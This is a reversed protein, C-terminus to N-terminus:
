KLVRVAGTLRSRWYPVKISTVTVHKGRAPAHVMRGEGVYIGVHTGARTRFFVLDGPMAERLKILRGSRAQEAATRPLAVGVESYVHQVLGSCDFGQGDGGGYLYPRGIQGLASELITQRREAQPSPPEPAPASEAEAPATAPAQPLVAPEPRPEAEAPPASPPPAPEAALEAAPERPPAAPPDFSPICATLVAALVGSVAAPLRWKKDM